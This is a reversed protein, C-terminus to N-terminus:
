PEPSGVADTMPLAEADKLLKFLESDTSLVLTTGSDLVEEYVELTRVFNYLEAAEPTQNYAEAYIRTAKADADGQISQVKRYAESKIERLDREMGGIIKAAEGQGESRFREAIQLRESIMRDFIRQQVSRNYNIRKFRVDLLEIGFELLKPAAAGLIEKEMTSRGKSIPKLVGVNGSLDAEALAEDIEVERNKTTRVVEILENRAITNRTESGLIDDLRSQASREDRLRQFYKLPDSIRWRGFTDVLIYTKDKTPMETPTGDWELVRKDIRNVKQVFPMKFNLGASTVPEGVPKGFQTIIAQETEAVRYLASPLVIVAVALILIALFGKLANKPIQSM